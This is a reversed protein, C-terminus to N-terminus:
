SALPATRAPISYRRFLWPMVASSTSVTHLRLIFYKARRSIDEIMEGSLTSEFENAAVNLSKPRQITVNQIQKGIVAESLCQKYHEMEPIEPM